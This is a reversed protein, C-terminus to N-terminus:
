HIYKGLIDESNFKVFSAPQKPKTFSEAIYKMYLIWFVVAMSVAVRYATAILFSRKDRVYILFFLIVSSAVGFVIQPILGEVIYM